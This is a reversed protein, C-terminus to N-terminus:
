CGVEPPPGQDPGPRGGGIVWRSPGVGYAEDQLWLGEDLGVMYVVHQWVSYQLSQALTLLTVSRRRCAWEAAWLSCTAGPPFAYGLPKAFAAAVHCYRPRSRRGSSLTDRSMRWFRAGELVDIALVDVQVGPLM